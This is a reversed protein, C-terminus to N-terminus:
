GHGTPHRTNPGVARISIARRRRSDVVPALHDDGRGRAQRATVSGRDRGVLEEGRVPGLSLRGFQRLLLDETGLRWDEASRRLVPVSAPPLHSLIHFADCRSRRGSPLGRIGASGAGPPPNRRARPRTRGTRTSRRRSECDGGSRAIMARSASLVRARSPRGARQRSGAAASGSTMESLWASRWDSCRPAFCKRVCGTASSSRSPGAGASPSRRLPSRAPPGRICAPLRPTRCIM